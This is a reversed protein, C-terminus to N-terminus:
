PDGDSFREPEEPRRVGVRYEIAEGWLEEWLTVVM